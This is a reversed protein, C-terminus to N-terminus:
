PKRSKKTVASIEVHKSLYEHALRALLEALSIGELKAYAGLRNYEDRQLAIYTPITNRASPMNVTYTHLVDKLTLRRFSKESGWYRSRLRNGDQVSRLLRNAM